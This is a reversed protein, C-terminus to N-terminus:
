AEEMIIIVINNAAILSVTRVRRSYNPYNFRSAIIAIRDRNSVERNSGGEKRYEANYLNREFTLM